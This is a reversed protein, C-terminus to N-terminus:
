GGVAVAVGDADHEDVELSVKVYWLVRRKKKKWKLVEGCVRPCVIVAEGPREAVERAAPGQGHQSSRVVFRPPNRKRRWSSAGSSAQM